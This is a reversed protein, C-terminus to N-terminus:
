VAPMPPRPSQGRPVTGKPRISWGASLVQAFVPKAGDEEFGGCFKLYKGSIPTQRAIRSGQWAM